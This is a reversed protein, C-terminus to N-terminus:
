NDDSLHAKDVLRDGAHGSSLRDSGVPYRYYNANIGAHFHGKTIIYKVM